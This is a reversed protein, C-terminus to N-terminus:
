VNIVIYIVCKSFCITLNNMMQRLIGQNTNLKTLKFQYFM